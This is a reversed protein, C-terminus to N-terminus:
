SMPVRSAIRGLCLMQDEGFHSVPVSAVRHWVLEWPLGLDPGPNGVVEGGRPFTETRLFQVVTGRSDQRNTCGRPTRGSRQFVVRPDM